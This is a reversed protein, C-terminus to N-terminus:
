TKYKCLKQQMLLFREISKGTEFEIQEGREPLLHKTHKWLIILLHSDDFGKVAVHPYIVQSLPYIANSLFM